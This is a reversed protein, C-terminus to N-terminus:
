PQPCISFKATLSDNCLPLAYKTNAYTYLCQTQQTLQTYYILTTFVNEEFFSYLDLSPASDLQHFLGPALILYEM